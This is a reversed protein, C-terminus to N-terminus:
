ISVCTTAQAIDQLPHDDPSRTSEVEEDVSVTGTENQAHLPLTFFLAAGGEPRSEAWIRGQHARVIERCIALGLGTGGAGTKTRSSQVFQDFITELEAAPIGIGNDHVGVVVSLADHQLSLEISGGDSSFKVANSVLNRLVQMIKHSDVLLNVPCLPRSFHITLHQEATLSRFEDVVAALLERLDVRRYECPMRGAEWKALELLDNLLLMLVRGSQDIQQFYGRVKAPPATAARKLGFGAFSLIGHLPTRLEHSMNALFESKIRNAAEAEEKAELLARQSEELQRTREWVRQELEAHAASIEDAMLNLAQSLVAVEDHGEVQLRYDDDGDAPQRLEGAAIMQAFGTIKRLPKSIKQTFLWTLIIIMTVTVGLTSVALLMYLKTLASAISATSLGLKFSGIAQGDMTIRQAFILTSDNQVMDKTTTLPRRKADFFVAWQVGDQRRLSTVIDELATMDYNILFTASIGAIAEVLGQGRAYLDQEIKASQNDSIYFAAVLQILLLTVAMPLGFKM